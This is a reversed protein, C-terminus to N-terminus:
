KTSGGGGGSSAGEGLECCDEALGRDGDKSIVEIDGGDEKGEWEGGGREVFGGEGGGSGCSAAAFGLFGAFELFRFFFSELLSGGGLCLGFGSSIGGLGANM